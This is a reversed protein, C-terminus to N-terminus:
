VSKKRQSNEIREVSKKWELMQRDFKSCLNVEQMNVCVCVHNNVCMYMCMCVCMYVFM